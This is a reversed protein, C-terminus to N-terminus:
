NFFNSLKLFTLEENEMENFKRLRQMGCEQFGKECKKSALEHFFM